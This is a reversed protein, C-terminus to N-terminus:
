EKSDLQKEMNEFEGILEDLKIHQKKITKPRFYFWNLGIWILTVSYSLISGLTTMRSTYEYMYLCIGLSLVIFYFGLIKTQIYKQKTKLLILDLLYENNSKTYDIKNFVSFLKNNFFVFIVMSLITLVIGIKSTIFQPQYHNWIFIILGITIVLIVNTIILKQLGSKKFQNLKYTLEEINPQGVKQQKWISSLDLNNNDM